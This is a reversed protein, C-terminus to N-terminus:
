AVDGLGLFEGHPKLLRRRLLADRDGTLTPNEDIWTKADRRALRLLEIDDPLRAVRFPAMGSQRSGFLEGPGRIELDKEAIEFGDTTSIIAELRARGDDTTPDAILTCLSRKDGRGVRGRLQHLQALGFREAHEIVMLTANPVDVGVEIVTTAVIADLEGAKFRIMIAEREDRGLRGHMASLGRSSLPGSKLFELHSGVDKLGADSEDVAPVVIYAQDGTGLREDVYRYVEASRAQSVWRTIIPQRGPPLDRITSSDLDGFVTLSMTRPIPTATMVLVHPSSGPDAAKARLQARQHVGFRHQEDIVAVALSRFSVAETLLAHTGILLDIEGAELRELISRRKATKLSGTLLEIAVNSGALMTAISAFHQEALLETPAMLAAQHGDAVAMLMAYLAVVTKGAGVDGQLLRNMPETRRLDAVIEKIVAEQAATLEFPFRDRIHRDIAESHHLVPATLTEQRHRRKLMVGLQLMLLEDLALRRRAHQAQEESEPRHVMRYAEALPPLARDRRYGEHLHDDLQALAADLVGDIVQEIVTSSLEESAPYVPRVREERVPPDHEEDIVSWKPNVLQLYDGWRKGRGYARVHMGPHLKHRMWEANFWTLLITGTHDQLTAEFRSRRGPVVRCNAIEGRVAINADNGHEAGISESVDAITQEPLEHEYRHPLHLILDAVCRIGLRRFAAARKPGVGPLDAINSTLQITQPKTM